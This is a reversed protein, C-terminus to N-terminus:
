VSALALRWGPTTGSGPRGPRLRSRLPRSYGAAAGRGPALLAAVWAGVLTGLAHALFPFLFNLPGFRPMAARLGEMTSVDAGAPAPVWQAGLLVLGMNVASGALLGLVLALLMQFVRKM